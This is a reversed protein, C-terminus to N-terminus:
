KIKLVKALTFTVTVIVQIGVHAPASTPWLDVLSLAKTRKMSKQFLEGRM